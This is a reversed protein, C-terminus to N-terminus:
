RLTLPSFDKKARYLLLLSINFVPVLFYTETFTTLLFVAVVWRMFRSLFALNALLRCYVWLLWLSALAGASYFLAFYFFDVPKYADINQGFLPNPLGLAQFMQWSFWIRGTLAQNLLADLAPNAGWRLVSVFQILLLTLLLVSCFKRGPALRWLPALWFLAVLLLALLLYTRSYSYMLIPLLMVALLLATLNKIGRSLAARDLLCLLMALLAFLYYALTNPNDFGLTLRNGYREDLYVFSDTYLLYPLAVLAASSVYAIVFIAGARPLDVRSLILFAISFVVGFLYDGHGTAMNLMFLLIFGGLLGKERRTAVTFAYGVYLLMIGNLVKVAQAIPANDFAGSTLFTKFFFILLFTLMVTQDIVRQSGGAQDACQRPVASIPKHM